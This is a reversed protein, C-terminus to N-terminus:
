CGAGRARAHCRGDALPQLLPEPRANMGSRGLRDLLAELAPGPLGGAMAQRLLEALPPRDQGMPARTM